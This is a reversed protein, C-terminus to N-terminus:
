YKLSSESSMMKGAETSLFCLYGDDKRSQQQTGAMFAMNRSQMNVLTQQGGQTLYSYMKQEKLWNRAQPNRGVKHYIKTFMRVLQAKAYFYFRVATGLSVIIRTGQDSSTQQRSFQLHLM